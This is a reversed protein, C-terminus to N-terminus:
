KTPKGSCVLDKNKEFVKDRYSFGPNDIRKIKCLQAVFGTVYVDELHFYPTDLAKKYICEASSRSLVYGLGALYSPYENGNYMYDPVQWKDMYNSSRHVTLVKCHDDVSNNKLTNQANMRGGCDIGTGCCFCCGMLLKPTDKYTNGKTLQYFLLPLNVTYDADVKLMYQSRGMSSIHRSLFFKLAYLSKLTLNHYHEILGDIQIIDGYSRNEAHINENTYNPQKRTKESGLLFLVSTEENAKRAWGMRVNLREKTKQPLSPVIVILRKNSLQKPQPVITFNEMMYLLVSRNKSPPWANVHKGKYLKPDTFTYERFLNGNQPIRNTERTESINNDQASMSDLNGRTIYDLKVEPLYQISQDSSKKQFSILHILYQHLLYCAITYSLAVSFISIYVNRTRLLWKQLIENCVM